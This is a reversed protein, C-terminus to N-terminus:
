QKSANRVMKLLSFYNNSSFLGPHARGEATTLDLDGLGHRAAYFTDLMKVINYNRYACLLLPNEALVARDVRYVAIYERYAARLKSYVREGVIARLSGRLPKWLRDEFYQGLIERALSFWLKRVQRSSFGGQGTLNSYGSELTSGIRRDKMRMAWIKPNELLPQFRGTSFAEVAKLAHGQMHPHAKEMLQRLSAKQGNTGIPDPHAFHWLAVSSDHWIEPWGANVLRWALDYPGCLYGIYSPHEDFGGFRIADERRTTVCAGENVILPWWQWRETDKLTAADSLNDPYLLSTRWEYHMLVLPQAVAGKELGFSRFVSRVFDAPFVADSDCVCILDGRAKLLGVNYGLHKHYTGHQNCTIVVDAKEMVEDIVRDYLEVWILEYQERPVDQKNLWDLTTFRERCGWDLLIFSLRPLASASASASASDKHVIESM